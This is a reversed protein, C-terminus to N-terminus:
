VFGISDDDAAASSADSDDPVEELADRGALYHPYVFGELSAADALEVTFHGPAGDGFKITGVLFVGISVV